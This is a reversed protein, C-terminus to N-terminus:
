TSKRVILKGEYCLPDQQVYGEEIMRILIDCGSYGLDYSPQAITTLEPDVLKAMYIDDYGIVAVDEPIRKGFFRLAKIAGIAVMDNGCVVADFSIGQNILWSIGGYGWEQRFTGELVRQEMFPFGANQLARRYGEMREQATQYGSSGSLMAIEKYGREILHNTADYAGKINDVFVRGIPGEVEVDRGMLIVPVGKSRTEILLPTRSSSDTFIIGDVMKEILMKVYREEKLPSDDSNCIIVSYGGENARDEAGRSIEPFFPNTIDPIVLGITRSKKTVLSRALINPVYNHTKALEWIKDKTKDSIHNAKNNLVMSVTATSVGAMRALDKITVKM